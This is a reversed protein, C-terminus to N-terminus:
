RRMLADLLAGRAADGEPGEPLPREPLGTQGWMKAGGRAREADKGAGNALQRMFYSLGGLPLAAAWGAPHMSYIGAGAAAGYAASAANAVLQSGGHQNALMEMYAKMSDTDAM